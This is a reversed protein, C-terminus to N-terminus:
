ALSPSHTAGRSKRVARSVENNPLFELIKKSLSCIQMEDSLLVTDGGISKVLSM